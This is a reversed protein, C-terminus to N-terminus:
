FALETAQPAAQPVVGLRRALWVTREIDRRNHRAIAEWDGAAVLAGIEAGDVDDNPVNCGLQRCIETLGNSVVTDRALTGDLTWVDYLDIHGDARGYPAIMRRWDRPADLNLLRTRHYIHPWDYTRSYFGILIRGYAARWFLGLAGLEVAENPCVTVQPEQMEETQWGISVIRSANPDLPAKELQAARKAEAEERVKQRKAELDAAIKDPDKLRGDAKISDYDEEIPRFFPVMEPRLAKEVDVILYRKPLAAAREDNYGM